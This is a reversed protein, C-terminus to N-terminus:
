CFRLTHTHTYTAWNWLCHNSIAVQRRKIRRERSFYIYKNDTNFKSLNTKIIGRRIVCDYCVSVCM